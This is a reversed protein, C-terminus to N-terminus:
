FSYIIYHLFDCAKVSVLFQGRRTRSFIIDYPGKSALFYSNPCLRKLTCYLLPQLRKKKKNTSKSYASTAKGKGCVNRKVVSVSFYFCQLM